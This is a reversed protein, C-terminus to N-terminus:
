VCHRAYSSGSRIVPKWACPVNPRSEDGPMDTEPALGYTHRRHMSDPTQRGM